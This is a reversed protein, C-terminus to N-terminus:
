IPRITQGRALEGGRIVRLLVGCDIHGFTRRLALPINLDRLGTAPDVNTAACRDIREAVEFRVEGAELTTELWDFEAWAALDDVYLNARFRLPDVPRGLARELEQVTTLNILSVRKEAHDTFVHGPADVLRPGRGSAADTYAAFFREIAARGDRTRVDADFVPLEGRWGRLRGAAHDYAVRLTALREDTMLQLFQRKPLWAPREPDFPAEPRALAFVRDLPLAEGPEVRTAALEEASLGKVPYRCIRAIRAM